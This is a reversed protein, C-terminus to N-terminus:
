RLARAIASLGGIVEAQGQVFCSFGFRDNALGAREVFGQGLAGLPQTFVDLPGLQRATASDFDTVLVLRGEEVERAGIALHDGLAYETKTEEQDHVSSGKAAHRVEQPIPEVFEAEVASFVHPGGDYPGDRDDRDHVDKEEADYEQRRTLTDGDRRTDEFADPPKRNSGPRALNRGSFDLFEQAVGVIHDQSCVTCGAADTIRQVFFLAAPQAFRDPEKKHFLRSLGHRLPRLAGNVTRDRRCKNCQRSIRLTEM